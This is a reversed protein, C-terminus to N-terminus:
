QLLNIRHIHLSHRSFLYYALDLIYNIGVVDEKTVHLECVVNNFGHVVVFLHLLLTSLPRIFLSFYLHKLVNLNFQITSNNLAETVFKVVSQNHNVLNM